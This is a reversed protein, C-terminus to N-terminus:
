EPQFQRVVWLAQEPEYSLTAFGLDGFAFRVGQGRPSTPAGVAVRMAANIIGGHAVVLTLGPGRRVLEALARAARATAEWQSEGVGAYPAFPHEFSTLAFQQAAESYSVGALPGNDLELWDDSTEVALGLADAIIEATEKARLLPSAIVRDFRVGRARWEEARQRAQERGADSLPSDYRGEHVEEDDALSRGHRLLVLSVSPM